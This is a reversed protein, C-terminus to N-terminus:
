TTRHLGRDNYASELKYFMDDWNVRVGPSSQNYTHSYVFREWTQTGETIYHGHMVPKDDVIIDACALSKDRVLMLRDLWREGLYHAVWRAKESWCGQHVTDTEPSSCLYPFFREDDYIQNLVAISNGLPKMADYFGQRRITNLIIKSHEPDYNEEIWFIKVADAPIHIEPPLHRLVEGYWDVVVGDLDFAVVLKKTIM